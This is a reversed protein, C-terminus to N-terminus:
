MSEKSDAMLHPIIAQNLEVLSELNGFNMSVLGFRHNELAQLPHIPDASWVRSSM